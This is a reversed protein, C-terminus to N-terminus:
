SCLLKFNFAKTRLSSIRGHANTCFKILTIRNPGLAWIKTLVHYNVLYFVDGYCM